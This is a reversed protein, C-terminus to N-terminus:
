LRKVLICLIPGFKIMLTAIEGKPQISYKARSFIKSKIDDEEIELREFDTIINSYGPASVHLNFRNGEPIDLEFEGQENANTMALMTSDFQRFGYEYIRIEIPINGTGGELTVKGELKLEQCNNSCSYAFVILLLFILHKM